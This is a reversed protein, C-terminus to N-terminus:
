RQLLAAVANEQSARSAVEAGGPSPRYARWTYAISGDARRKGDSRFLDGLHEGEPDVLRMHQGSWRLAAVFTGDRTVAWVNHGQTKIAIAAEPETPDPEAQPEREATIAALATESEAKTMEGNLYLRNVDHQAQDLERRKAEAERNAALNAASAEAYNSALWAAQDFDPRVPKSDRYTVTWTRLVTYGQAQLEDVKPDDALSTYTGGWPAPGPLTVKAYEGDPVTPEPQEREALERAEMDELPESMPALDADQPGFMWDDVRASFDDVHEDDGQVPATVEPEPAFASDAGASHTGDTYEAEVSHSGSVKSTAEAVIRGVKGTEIHQVRDGIKHVPEPQDEVWRVALEPNSGLRHGLRYDEASARRTGFTKVPKDALSDDAQVEFVGYRGPKAEQGRPVNGYTRARGDADTTRAWLGYRKGGPRLWRMRYASLQKAEGERWENSVQLEGDQNFVEFKIM